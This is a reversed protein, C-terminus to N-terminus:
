RESANLHIESGRADVKIRGAPPLGLFVSRMHRYSLSQQRMEPSRTAAPRIQAEDDITM